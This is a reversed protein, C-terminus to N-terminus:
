ISKKGYLFITIFKFMSIHMHNGGNGIKERVGQLGAMKPVCVGTQSGGINASMTTESDRNEM